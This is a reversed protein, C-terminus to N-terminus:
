QSFVLQRLRRHHLDHRQQQSRHTRNRRDCLIGLRLSLCVGTVRVLPLVGTRADTRTGCTRHPQLRCLSANRMTTNCRATLASRSTHQTPPHTATHTPLPSRSLPLVVTLVACVCVRRLMWRVLQSRLQSVTAELTAQWAADAACCYTTHVGTACADCATM